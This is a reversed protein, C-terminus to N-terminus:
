YWLRGYHGRLYSQAQNSLADRHNERFQQIGAWLGHFFARLYGGRLAEWFYYSTWVILYSPIYRLPLYRYALYYRNRISYYLEKSEKKKRDGAGVVSTQPYHHVVISPEYYVYYGANIARYSLDLEEGGFMMDDKYPGCREFVERKIAHCTGLYYSVFQGKGILDPKRRLWRKSFPVLLNSNNGCHNVVKCAVIGISKHISFSKVFRTLANSSEFFADDDIFCFVEGTAMRTLLNRSGAVGLHTNSRLCRLRPDKFHDMLVRCLDVEDSADDLVLVEFDSYDQHLVSQLCRILVGLRNRSGILVSVRM